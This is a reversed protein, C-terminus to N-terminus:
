NFNISGIKNPLGVLAIVRHHRKQHAIATSSHPYNPCNCQFDCRLKPVLPVSSSLSPIIYLLPCDIQAARASHVVQKGCLFLHHAHLFFLSFHFYLTSLNFRQPPHSIANKEEEEAVAADNMASYFTFIIIFRSHACPSSTYTNWERRLSTWQEPQSSGRSTNM